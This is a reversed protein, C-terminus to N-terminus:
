DNRELNIIEDAYDNIVSSHSVIIVCKGGTSLNKLIKLIKNENKKDLNGTPEDALIICPDNILARAIAVRQQEGGSLQSPFHSLRNELGLESLLDIAKNTKINYEYNSNAYIPLLVNDIVNLNNDLLYDQFVFGIKKNRILSEEEDTMNKTVQDDILVDGDSPKELLGLIKILTSKGCGSNGVLGYLKNYEFKINLNDFVKIKRKKIYYDKSIKNLCIAYKKM